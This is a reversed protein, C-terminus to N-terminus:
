FLFLNWPLTIDRLEISEYRISGQPFFLFEKNENQCQQRNKEKRSAFRFIDSDLM